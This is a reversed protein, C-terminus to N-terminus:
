GQAFGRRTVQPNDSPLSPENQGADVLWHCVVFLMANSQLLEVAVVDSGDIFGINGPKVGVERRLKEVSVGIAAEDVALGKQRLDAAVEDTLFIRSCSTMIRTSLSKAM